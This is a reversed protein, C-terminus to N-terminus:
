YQQKNNQKYGSVIQHTDEYSNKSQKKTLLRESAQHQVSRREQEVIVSNSNIIQPLEFEQKDEVLITPSKENMNNKIQQKKKAQGTYAQM